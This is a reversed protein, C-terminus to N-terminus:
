AHVAVVATLDNLFVGIETSITSLAYASDGGALAQNTGPRVALDGANTGAHSLIEIDVYSQDPDDPKYKGEYRRRGAQNGIDDAPYNHRFFWKHV